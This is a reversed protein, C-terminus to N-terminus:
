FSDSEINTVYHCEHSVTCCFAHNTYELEGCVTNGINTLRIRRRYRGRGYNPNKPYDEEAPM